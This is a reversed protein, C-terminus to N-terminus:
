SAQVLARQAMFLAMSDNGEVLRIVDLESGAKGCGLMAPVPGGGFL